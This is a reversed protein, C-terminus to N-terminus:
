EVRNFISYASKPEVIVFYVLKKDGRTTLTLKERQRIVRKNISIDAAQYGENFRIQFIEAVKNRIEKPIDVRIRWYKKKSRWMKGSSIISYNAKRVEAATRSWYGGTAVDMAFVKKQLSKMRAYTKKQKSFKVAHLTVNERKCKVDINFTEIKEDKPIFVVEYYAATTKQITKVMQNVEPQYYFMGGSTDAILKLSDQYLINTFSGSYIVNISTGGQNIARSLDELYSISNSGMNVSFNGCILFFSKPGQITMLAYKLNSFSKLYFIKGLKDFEDYPTDVAIKVTELKQILYDKSEDPGGLYKLGPGDKYTLLIFEDHPSGQRIFQATISKARDLSRLDSHQLDIILFIMRKSKSPPALKRPARTVRPITSDRSPGSSQDERSEEQYEFRHLSLLYIPCPKGNVWLELDEKKLDFIPNGLSDLAFMPVIQAHVAVEYELKKHEQPFGWWCSIVGVVLFYILLRKKM